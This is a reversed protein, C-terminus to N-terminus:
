LEDFQKQLENLKEKYYSVMSSRLEDALEKLLEIELSSNTEHNEFRVKVSVSQGDIVALDRQKRKIETFLNGGELWTKETM